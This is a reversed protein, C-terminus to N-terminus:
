VYDSSELMLKRSQKQSAPLNGHQIYQILPSLEEDAAQLTSLEKASKPIPYDQVAKVRDPPPRIGDRSILHGLFVCERRAFVCKKPGLKLGAERFRQFVTTLDKLHQEFTSSFILCDDLYCLVSIYSLRYFIRDMLLQLTGPSTRLGM